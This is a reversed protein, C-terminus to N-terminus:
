FKKIDGRLQLTQTEKKCCVHSLKYLYYIKNLPHKVGAVTSLIDMYLYMPLDISSKAEIESFVKFFHHHQSLQVDKPFYNTICHVSSIM